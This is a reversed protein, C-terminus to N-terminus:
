NSIRKFAISASSMLKKSGFLTLGQQDLVNSSSEPPDVELYKISVVESTVHPGSDCEEFRDALLNRDM